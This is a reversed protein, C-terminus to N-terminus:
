KKKAVRYERLRRYFTAEKLETKALLDMFPLEGREWQKVLNGFNEPPTIIPRGFKVGKARAAAIGQAQRIHISEYEKQAAFSLLQLVVDTVVKGMLDGKHRGRTDLIPMDIVVIDVEKEQTILRWQILIEDYNRGLRDISLIYLLDGVQLKSLMVLYNKRNFEKGSQKDIFIQENPIRLENMAIIQRDENQEKSSVRVYGYEM